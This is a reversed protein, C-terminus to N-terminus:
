RVNEPTSVGKMENFWEAINKEFVTPSSPGAIKAQLRGRGGKHQSVHEVEAMSEGEGGDENKWFHGHPHKKQKTSDSSHTQM